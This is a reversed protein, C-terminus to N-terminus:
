EEVDEPGHQARRGEGQAGESGDAEVGARSWRSVKNEGLLKELLKQSQKSHGEALAKWEKWVDVPDQDENEESPPKALDLVFSLPLSAM